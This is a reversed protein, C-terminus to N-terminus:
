WRYVVTLYTCAGTPELNTIKLEARYYEDRSRRNEVVYTHLEHSSRGCGDGEM